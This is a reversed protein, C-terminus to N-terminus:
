GAASSMPSFMAIMALLVAMLRRKGMERALLAQGIPNNIKPAGTHLLDERKLYIRAGLQASLAAAYTLPTPRGVYDRM